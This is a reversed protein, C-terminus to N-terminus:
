VEIVEVPVNGATSVAYVPVAQNPHFSLEVTAGPELLQGIADSIGSGGVRVPVSQHLNRVIMKRRNAKRSSGAFIEAVTSVVTKTGTVPASVVTAESVAWPVSSVVDGQNVTGVNIDGTNVQIDAALILRGQSDLRLPVPQGTNTFGWFVTDTGFHGSSLPSGTIERFDNISPDWAQPVPSALQNSPPNGERKLRSM